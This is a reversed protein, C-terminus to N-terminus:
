QYGSWRIMLGLFPITEPYLHVLPIFFYPTMLCQVSEASKAMSMDLSNLIKVKMKGLVEMTGRLFRWGKVKLAGNRGHFVVMKGPSKGPPEPGPKAWRSGPRGGPAPRGTTSRGRSARGRPHATACRPLPAAARPSSRPIPSAMEPRFIKKPPDLLIKM